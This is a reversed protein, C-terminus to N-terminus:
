RGNWELRRADLAAFRRQEIEVSVSAAVLAQLVITLDQMVEEGFHMLSIAETKRRQYGITCDTWDIDEAQLDAIDGQSGGLHWCLQYFVKRENNKEHEVIRLHEELADAPIDGRWKHVGAKSVRSRKAALGM